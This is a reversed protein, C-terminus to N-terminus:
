CYECTTHGMDRRVPKIGCKCWAYGEGIMTGAREQCIKEHDPRKLSPLEPNTTKADQDAAEKSDDSSGEPPAADQPAKEEEGGWDPDHNEHGQHEEHEHSM